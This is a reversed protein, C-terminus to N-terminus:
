NNDSGENLCQKISEQISEVFVKIDENNYEVPSLM